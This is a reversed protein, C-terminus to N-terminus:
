KNLWRGIIFRTAYDLPVLVVIIYSFWTKPNYFYVRSEATGIIRTTIFIDFTIVIIMWVIGYVLAERVTKPNAIKSILYLAAVNFTIVFLWPLGSTANQKLVM